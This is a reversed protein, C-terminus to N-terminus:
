KKAATFVVGSVSFAQRWLEEFDADTGIKLQHYRHHALHRILDQNEQRMTHILKADPKNKM